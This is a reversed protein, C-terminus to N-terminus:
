GAGDVDLASSEEEITDATSPRPLFEEDKPQALDPPLELDSEWPELADPDDAEDGELKRELRTVLGLLTEVTARLEPAKVLGSTVIRDLEEPLYSRVESPLPTPAHSVAALIEVVNRGSFPSEGTVMEYLVVTAAWADSREDVRKGAAQEPAFYRPTGVTEGTGTIRLAKSNLVRAVGFDVIKVVDNAGLLINDPKVDRHAVGARHAATLGALLQREITLADALPLRRERELRASLSTGRVLEMVLFPRGDETVGVDWVQAVNQHEVRGTAQAERMFRDRTRSSEALSHTLVKIAVDRGIRTHRARYVHGMSGRGLESLVEYKGEILAGIMEDDVTVARRTTDTDGLDSSGDLPEGTIPCRALGVEHPLQCRPCRTFRLAPM